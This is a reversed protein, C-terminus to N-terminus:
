SEVRLGGGEVRLGGGEVRLGGGEVRLGGSEVSVRFGSGTDQVLVESGGDRVWLGWIGVRFGWAWLWLGWM